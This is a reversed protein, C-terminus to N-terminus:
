RAKKRPLSAARKVADFLVDALLEVLDEQRTRKAGKAPAVVWKLATAEVFGIWGRLALQVLPTTLERPLDEVIRAVFAGRTEELIAGVQPDSGIGGSMLASYAPRHAEVFELYTTLGLRIREEPPLTPDTETQEILQRAALKLAAVYLDRKTPFYHYLLGKSIGAARALEDISVEDYSQQSFMALGLALLQGRRVEVELRERGRPRSKRVAM